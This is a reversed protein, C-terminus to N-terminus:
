RLGPSVTLAEVATLELLGTVGETLQVTVDLRFPGGGLRSVVAFARGTIVVRFGGDPQPEFQAPERDLGLESVRALSARLASAFDTRTSLWPLGTRLAVEPGCRSLVADADRAELGAELADLTAEVREEDSEILLDLAVPLAVALAIGAFLLRRRASAM